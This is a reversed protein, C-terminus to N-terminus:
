QPFERWLRGDLVAGAKKRGVKRVWGWPSPSGPRWPVKKVRPVDVTGRRHDWPAYEGWQKFFFPVGSVKCQVQTSGIWEPHAPRAGPGSEGGAVVWDLANHRCDPCCAIAGSNQFTRCDRRSTGCGSCFGDLYKRFDVPGLAPEYSVWRVAAPIEFLYPIREDATKEDEVSVGVWLNKLPLTLKTPILDPSLDTRTESYLARYLTRSVGTELLTKFYRKMFEPRKTLIQYVHWDALATIALIKDIQNFSNAAHFLDSMSCVFVKRPRNWRTPNELRDPHFEVKEFDRKFRKSTREAYCNRCGESVHSCGTVPNWTADTWEIKSNDAM